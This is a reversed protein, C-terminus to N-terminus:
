AKKAFHIPVPVPQSFDRPNVKIPLRRRPLSPKFTRTRMQMLYLAPKPPLRDVEAQADAEMLLKIMKLKTAMRAFGAM